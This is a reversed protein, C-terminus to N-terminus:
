SAEPTFFIFLTAIHDLRWIEDPGKRWRAMYALELRQKEGMKFALGVRSRNHNFGNHPAFFVENAIFPKIDGLEFNIRSQNRFRWQAQDPFVRYELRSRNGWAITEGWKGKFLPELNFRYEQTPNGAPLEIYIIDGYLGLQFNPHLKWVPGNSFRLVGIGEFRPALQAVTFSRFADPSWVDQRNQPLTILTDVAQWYEIDAQAATSWLLFFCFFFSLGKKLQSISKIM